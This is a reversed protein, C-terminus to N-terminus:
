LHPYGPYHPYGPQPPAAAYPYAPQAYPSAPPPQHWQAAAAMAPAATPAPPAYVHMPPPTPIAPTPPQVHKMFGQALYSGVMACMMTESKANMDLLDQKHETSLDPSESVLYEYAHQYTVPQGHHDVSYQTTRSPLASAVAAAAMVPAAPNMMPHPLTTAAGHHYPVQPPPAGYVPHGPPAPAAHPQVLAAMYSAPPPTPAAASAHQLAHLHAAMKGQPSTTAPPGFPTYGRTEESPLPPRTRPTEGPAVPYTPNSWRLKDSLDNASIDFELCKEHDLEVHGTWKAVANHLSKTQESNMEDRKLDHLRRCGKGPCGGKTLFARFCPQQSVPTDSRDARDSRGRRTGGGGGGGGGGGHGGGGSGGSGGGRGKQAGTTVNMAKKATSPKQGTFKHAVNKCYTKFVTNLATINPEQKGRDRIDDAVGDLYAKLAAVRSENQSTWTNGAEPWALMKTMIDRVIARGNPVIGFKLMDELATTIASSLATLNPVGDHVWIESALIISKYHESDLTCRNHELYEVVAWISPMAYPAINLMISYSDARYDRALTPALDRVRMNVGEPSRELVGEIWTALKDQGTLFSQTVDRLTGTISGPKLPPPGAQFDRWACELSDGDATAITLGETKGRAVQADNAFKTAKSSSSTTVDANGDLALARAEASKHQDHAAWADNYQADYTALEADFRRTDARHVEEAHVFNDLAANYVLVCRRMYDNLRQTYHRRLLSADNDGQVPTMTAPNFTTNPNVWPDTSPYDTPARADTQFMEHTMDALTADVAADFLETDPDHPNSHEIYGRIPAYYQHTRPDNAPDPAVTSVPTPRTPHQFGANTATPAAASLTPIVFADGGGGADQGVPDGFTFDLGQVGAFAPLASLARRDDRDTPIVKYTMTTGSVIGLSHSNYQEATTIEFRGGLRSSDALAAEFPYKTAQFDAFAGRLLAQPQRFQQALQSLPLGGTIVSVNIGSNTCFRVAEAIFDTPHMRDHIAFDTDAPSPIGATTAAPAQNSAQWPPVNSHSSHAPDAYHPAITPHSDTCPTALWPWPDHSGRRIMTNDAAPQSPGCGRHPRHPGCPARHPRHPGCPARHPRHAPYSPSQAEEYGRWNAPDRYYGRMHPVGNRHTTTATTATGMPMAGLLFITLMAAVMSGGLRNPFRTIADMTWRFSSRRIASSLLHFVDGQTGHYGHTHTHGSNLRAGIFATRFPTHFTEIHPLSSFVPRVRVWSAVQNAVGSGSELTQYSGGRVGM